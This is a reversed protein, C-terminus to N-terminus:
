RRRVQCARCFTTTRGSQVIRGLVSGCRPCPEGSHGYASFVDTWSTGEPVDREALESAIAKELGRAIAKVDKTGLANSKSRPDIRAHWLAETVLINGIGALVTQDMLVDKIPRRSKALAAALARPDIGDALPDPGLSSWEPIDEKAV